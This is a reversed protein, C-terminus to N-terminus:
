LNAMAALWDLLGLVIGHRSSDPSFTIAFRSTATEHGADYGIPTAPSFDPRSKRQYNKSPPLRDYRTAARSTQRNSQSAGSVAARRTPLPIIRSSKHDIHRGVVSCEQLTMCGSIVILRASSASKSAM